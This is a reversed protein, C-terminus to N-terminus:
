ADAESFRRSLARVIYFILIGPLASLVLEAALQLAGSVIGMQYVLYYYFVFRCMGQVIICAGGGLLAAFLVKRMYVAGLYGFAIGFLGFYLASLGEIVPSHISALIGGAFGVAGAVYPGEFLAISAVLFPIADVSAGLLSVSTGRANQLVFSALLILGYACYKITKHRRTRM